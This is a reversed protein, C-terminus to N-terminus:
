EADKIFKFTPKESCIMGETISFSVIEINEPM